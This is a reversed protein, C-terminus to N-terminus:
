MTEMGYIIIKGIMIYEKILRFVLCDYYVSRGRQASGDGGKQRYAIHGITLMGSSSEAVSIPLMGLFNLLSRAHPELSIRDSLCVSLCESVSM